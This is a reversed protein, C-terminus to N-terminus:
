SKTSMKSIYEYSNSSKTTTSKSSKSSKREKQDDDDNNNKKQKVFIEMPFPNIPLDISLLRTQQTEANFHFDNFDLQVLLRELYEPIIKNTKPLELLKAIKTHFSKLVYIIGM